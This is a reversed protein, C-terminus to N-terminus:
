SDLLCNYLDERGIVFGFKIPGIIPGSASNLLDERVGPVAALLAGLLEHM